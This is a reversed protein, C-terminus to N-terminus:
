STWQSVESLYAKVESVGLVDAYQADMDFLNLKHSTESRDFTAEEAVITKFNNAFADLVTARICGSTVGGTVIVTDVQLHTLYSALPTGFFGSPKTKQIVIENPAPAILEPITNAGPDGAVKREAGKAKKWNWAGRTVPSRQELGKTYFVPVGRERCVQLLDSIQEIAAWAAEGCSNPFREISDLIPESRDGVFVHTVDIVLLAPRVGHGGRVGYGALRYVERDPPPLIDDWIRTV